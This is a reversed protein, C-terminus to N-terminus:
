KGLFKDRCFEIRGRVAAPSNTAGITYGRLEESGLWAVSGNRHLKGKKMIALAAGVAVGEYLNLPTVGKRSPRSIGHPLISALQLFTAKFLAEEKAYDFSRTADKMYDNLFDKVSHVFVTYRHLFAFFRLVCEERTGDEDQKRNLRVVKHFNQDRALEELKQSFDGRYVCDRIEQDTLAVGGKNLREFLDFRVVEDSKDSLTVVKVPRLELQLQITKPLDSFTFGNYQTLKELGQLKLHNNIGLRKRLEDSGAFKVLASLRQVGDVLEWTGDENTAMFLSPVPIGLLFSEVLQSCRVEDWRFQRQYVPAIDIAGSQLMSLLQQIIIDFTDFDVARRQQQLQDALTSASPPAAAGDSPENKKKTSRKKKRTLAAMSFRMRIPADKATHFKDVIMEPSARKGTFPFRGADQHRVLRVRQRLPEAAIGFPISVGV